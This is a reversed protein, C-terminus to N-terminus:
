ADANAGDRHVLRVVARSRGTTVRLEEVATRLIQKIDTSAHLRDNIEALRADREAARRTADLAAQTQEFLRANDVALAVHESVDRLVSIDEATWDNQTECDQLAISGIIQGRVTIPVAVLNRGDVRASVLEGKELAQNLVLSESAPAAATPSAAQGVIEKAQREYDTWGERTLRRNMEDLEQVAQQARELLARNEEALATQRELSNRNEETLTVQREFSRANQIAVAIQDALGGLGALDSQTYLRVQTAQLDVAGITEGAIVLPLALRSQIGPLPATKYLPDDAIYEAVRSHGTAIVHGVFNNEAVLVRTGVLMRGAAIRGGSSRMVAEQGTEDKLYIAAHDFSFRDALLPTVASFLEDLKLSSAAARSIEASAELQDARVNLQENARGLEATRESVRQELTGLTQRLQGTMRNFATALQGIEDASSVPAQVTLDGGTIKEATQTLRVIPNAFFQATIGGFLLALLFVGLGSFIAAQGAVTVPRLAAQPEQEVVVMWGLTNIFPHQEPTAGIMAARSGVIKAPSVFTDSGEFSMRAYDQDISRIQQLEDPRLTSLEGEGRLMLGSEFILDAPRTDSGGKVTLASAFDNIPYFSAMVGIVQVPEGGYVPLAVVMQYDPLPNVMRPQSVYLAGQGGNYAKQWWEQYSQDYRETRFTSAILAGYKDTLLVHANDQMETRFLNFSVATTNSLKPQVVGSGEPAQVWQQDLRGVEQKIAASDDTRYLADSFLAIDHISQASALTQLLDQQREIMNGIVLAKNEAITRLGAGTQQTLNVSVSQNIFFSVALVAGAGIGIFGIMLKTRLRFENWHRLALAGLVVFGIVLGLTIINQTEPSTAERAVPFFLDFGLILVAGIVSIFLLEFAQRSPLRIQAIIFATILVSGAAFLLGFGTVRLVVLLMTLALSAVILRLSWLLQGRRNLWGAALLAVLLMAWIFVLGQRLAMPWRGNITIFLISAALGLAVLIFTIKVARDVQRRADQIQDNGSNNMM